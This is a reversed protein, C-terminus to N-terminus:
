NLMVQVARYIHVSWQVIKSKYMYFKFFVCFFGISLKRTCFWGIAIMVHAKRQSYFEARKAVWGKYTALVNKYHIPSKQLVLTLEFYFNAHESHHTWVNRKKSYSLLRRDTITVLHYYRMGAWKEYIMIWVVIPM